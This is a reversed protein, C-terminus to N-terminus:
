RDKGRELVEKALDDYSKVVRTSPFAVAVPQHRAQSKDVSRDKVIRTKFLIKNGLIETIASEVEDAASERSDVVNLVIGMVDLAPKFKKVSDFHRLFGGIGEIGYESPIVPIIVYDSAALISVSLEGQAKDTDILIYDYVGSKILPSIIRTMAEYSNSSTSMLIPIRSINKHGPVIDLGDYETQLIYDGMDNSGSMEMLYNGMVKYFNKKSVDSMDESFGFSHSLNMQDDTDIMLVKKGAKSLAYSLNACISSKGAGGKHIGLTIVITNAM